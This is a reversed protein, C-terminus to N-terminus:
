NRRGNNGGQTRSMAASLAKNFEDETVLKDEAWGKARLLAASQWTALRKEGVWEFVAKLGASEEASAKKEPRNKQIDTKTQATAAATQKQEEPANVTETQSQAAEDQSKAPSKKKDQSM